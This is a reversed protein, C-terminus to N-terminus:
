NGERTATEPTSILNPIFKAVYTVMGLFRQLEERNQPRNMETIARVKQPDPKLGEKSLVHGIYSIEDLAIQSKEKNLKLNKQRARELVQRLREDHQQQNEGWILLDDVIVKVGKIGSFIESMVDQFVDQASCIGFPLRKFRYRGFPTNFTCLKSSEQDLKIQWFGSSADLVSFIKTNPM